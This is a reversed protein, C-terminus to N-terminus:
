IKRKVYNKMKTWAAAPLVPKYDTKEKGKIYDIIYEARERSDPHTSVWSLYEPVSGEGDSLRYMFDAFPEPNINAAMLYGVAKIDAAKELKRDFATSSLVNAIRGAVDSGGGTTASILVSLGLEKVLSKMVHKETIHALEHCIVGSLEEASGADDILGSYIVLHGAPLAFANVESNELVHVKIKSRDISNARCVKSVISDIPEVVDRSYIEPSEKIFVDNLLEGLKEETQETLQNVKLLGEWDIRELAFWLGLFALVMGMGQLIIKRM